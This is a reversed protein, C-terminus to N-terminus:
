ANRLAEEVISRIEGGPIRQALDSLFGEVYLSRATKETLGRSRLYFLDEPAIRSVAASHSAKVDDTEIKLKPVAEAEATPDLLLIRESLHAETKQGKPGIEIAADCRIRAQGEAVGRVTVEGRGEESRFVNRVSIDCRKKDRVRVIWDLVSAGHKGTVESVLDHKAEGLTVNLFHLHADKGVTASQTIHAKGPGSWLFVVLLSSQAQLDATFMHRVDPKEAVFDVVLSAHSGTASSVHLSTVAETLRLSRPEKEVRKFHIKQM